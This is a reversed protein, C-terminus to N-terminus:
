PTLEGTHPDINLLTQRNSNQNAAVIREGAPDIKFNRPGNGMTPAVQLKTM